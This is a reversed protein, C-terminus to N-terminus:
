FIKFARDMRKKCSIIIFTTKVLNEPGFLWATESVDGIKAPKQTDCLDKHPPATAIAAKGGGGWRM